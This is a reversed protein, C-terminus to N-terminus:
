IIIGAKLPCTVIYVLERVIPVSGVEHVDHTCWVCSLFNVICSVAFYQRLLDVVPRFGAAKM